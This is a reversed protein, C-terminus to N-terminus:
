LGYTEILKTTFALAREDKAAKAAEDDRATKKANLTIAASEDDSNPFIVLSGRSKRYIATVTGSGDGVQIFGGMEAALKVQEAREGALNEASDWTVVNASFLQAGDADKWVCSTETATTAADGTAPLGLAALDEASLWSCPNENVVSAWKDWDFSGTATVPTAPQGPETAAPAAEPTAPAEAPAAPESGGCAAVGALLLACISATLRM